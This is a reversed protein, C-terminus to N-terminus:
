SCDLAILILWYCKIAITAVTAVTATTAITAGITAKTTNANIVDM